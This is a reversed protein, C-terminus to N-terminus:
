TASLVATNWLVQSRYDLCVIILLSLSMWLGMQLTRPSTQPSLGAVDSGTPLALGTPAPHLMSGMGAEQAAPLVCKDCDLAQAAPPVCAPGLPGAHPMGQICSGVLGSCHSQPQDPDPGLGDEHALALMYPQGTPFAYLVYGTRTGRVTPLLWLVLELGYVALLVLGLALSAYAACLTHAPHPAALVAQPM